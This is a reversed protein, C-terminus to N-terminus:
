KGFVEGETKSQKYREADLALAEVKDQCLAETMKLFAAVQAYLMEADLQEAIFDDKYRAASYSKVMLDFLRRGEESRKLFFQSLEPSFSDCINLLRYLNHIDSNYALYVRILSICCQEVVQHLMYICLQYNASRLCEAASELFGTALFMKKQHRKEAKEAARTPIFGPVRFSRITSDHNYLLKGNNAVTIFFRDNAKIASTVTERGHVSITIRGHHFHTNTYDQVPHEIRTENELVM